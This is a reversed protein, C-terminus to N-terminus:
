ARAHPAVLEVLPFARHRRPPVLFNQRRTATIFREIGAQRPDVAFAGALDLSAQDRRMRAFFDATPVFIAFQLKPQASGDPVDMADLGPGDARIHLPTTDPARSSRQLGALHGLRPQGGPTNVGAANALADGSGRFNNELFAPGSGSADGQAPVPNSRFMCQVRELYPEAYFQGLDEILHSLHVIAGNDFYDGPRATTLRASADGAFTTIGPPGSATVQQDAFGMWMPSAPNIQAAFPLRHRDALKRPLGIQQFMLRRSSVRLLGHLGARAVARGGLRTGHGTLYALVEDIVRTSDSRLMLLMDNGEIAVPVQFTQKVVGPNAPGVDTPGPVAEELAPRAPDAVLGPISGAVLGAPLRAFYPIGYGIIMFVGAPSFPLAREVAALSETMRRQDTPTPRRTLAITTYSTYVPPFRVVIGDVTRAPATFRDIDFQIDPLRGRRVAAQARGPTLAVADLAGLMTAGLGLRGAAALLARRTGTAPAPDLTAPAGDGDVTAPCCREPDGGARGALGADRATRDGSV